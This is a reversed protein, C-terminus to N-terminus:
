SSGERQGPAKRDRRARRRRRRLAGTCGEPCEPPLVGDVSCSGDADANTLRDAAPATGLADAATAGPGDPDVDVTGPVDGVAGDEGVRDDEDGEGDGDDPGTRTPGGTGTATMTEAAPMTGAATM